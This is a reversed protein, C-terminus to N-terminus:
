LNQTNGKGLHGYLSEESEGDWSEADPETKKWGGCTNCLEAHQELKIQLSCTPCLRIRPQNYPITGNFKPNMTFYTSLSIEGQCEGWLIFQYMDKITILGWNSPLWSNFKFMLCRARIAAAHLETTANKSCVQTIDNNSTVVIPTKQILVSDQGKRDVRVGSGGLICKAAEVYNELMCCEEWWLVAKNHCDNFPFNLNNHNVNGFLKVMKCISEAFMTKGTNAPGHLYFTNKKGLTGSLWCCLTHAVYRPDYNQYHCLKLVRNENINDLDCEGHIAKAIEWANSESIITECYLSITQELKQLGQSKSTFRLFLEPFKLKFQKQDFIHNEKCLRLAEMSLTEIITPQLKAPATKEQWNTTTSVYSIPLSSGPECDLPQLNIDENNAELEFVDARRTTKLGIQLLNETAGRMLVFGTRAGDIKAYFYNQLFSFPNVPQPITKGLKPCYVRNLSLWGASSNNLAAWIQNSPVDPALRSFEDTLFKVIDHRMRKIAWTIQRSNYGKVFLIHLHTKGEPSIELQYFINAHPHSAEEIILGARLAHWHLMSWPNKSLAQNGDFIEVLTQWAQQIPYAPHDTGHDREILQRLNLPYISPTKNPDRITIATPICLVASFGGTTPIAM